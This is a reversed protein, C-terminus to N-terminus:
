WLTKSLKAQHEALKLRANSIFTNSIFFRTYISKFFVYASQFHNKQIEGSLVRNTETGTSLFVSIKSFCLIKSMLSFIFQYFRPLNKIVQSQFSLKLLVLFLCSLYYQFFAISKFVKNADNMNRSYDFSSILKNDIKIMIQCQINKSDQSISDPMLLSFFITGQNNAM